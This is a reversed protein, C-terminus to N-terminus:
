SDSARDADINVVFAFAPRQAILQGVGFAGDIVAVVDHREANRGAAGAEDIDANGGFAAHGNGEM